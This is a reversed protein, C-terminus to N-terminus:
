KHHDFYSRAIRGDTSALCGIDLYDGTHINSASVSCGTLVRDSYVYAMFSM